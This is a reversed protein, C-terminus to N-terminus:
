RRPNLVQAGFFERMLFDELGESDEQRASLTVVRDLRHSEWKFDGKYHTRILEIMRRVMALELNGNLGADVEYVERWQSRAEPRWGNFAFQGTRTGMHLIQFVGGVGERGTLTRLNRTAADEPPAVPPPRSAEQEARRQARRQEIAALMDMPPPKVTSEAVPAPPQSSPEPPPQPLPARPRVPAPARRPAERPPSPAPPPPAAAPEATPEPPSETEAPVIRVTLPPATAALPPPEMPRSPAFALLSLHALLSLGIAIRIRQSSTV